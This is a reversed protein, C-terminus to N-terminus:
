VAGEQESPRMAPVGFEWGSVQPGWVWGSFSSEGWLPFYGEPILLPTGKVLLPSTMLLLPQRLHLAVPLYLHCTLARPAPAGAALNCIVKRVEVCSTQMTKRFFTIKLLCNECYSNIFHFDTLSWSASGVFEM